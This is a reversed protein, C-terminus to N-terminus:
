SFCAPIQAFALTKSFYSLSRQCNELVRSHLSIAALRKQQNQQEKTDGLKQANKYDELTKQYKSEINRLKTESSKALKELEANKTNL